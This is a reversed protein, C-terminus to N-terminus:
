PRRSQILKYLMARIKDCSSSLKEFSEAELYGIEHSIILQTQLEAASAKAYFFFQTSQKNTDREDGEAINSSISVGARRMQDRLGFDRKFEGQNTLLYVEKVLVISEQWVRLEKYNGM